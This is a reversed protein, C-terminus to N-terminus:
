RTDLVLVTAIPDLPKNPLAIDIGNTVKTIKLARKTKDALLYAGTVTRPVNELHFSGAPWKFIEVYIKDSTTTSRWDWASIFKPKGEGNTETKSFSGAEDGFLTPQTGYIAAGNM